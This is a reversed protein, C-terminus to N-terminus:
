HSCDFFIDNLDAAMLLSTAPYEPEPLSIIRGTTIEHLMEHIRARLKQLPRLSEDLRRMTSSIEDLATQTDDRCTTVKRDSIRQKIAMQKLMKHYHENTETMAPNRTVLSLLPTDRTPDKGSGDFSSRITFSIDAM